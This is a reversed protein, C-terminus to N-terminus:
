IRPPFPVPMAAVGSSNSFAADAPISALGIESIRQELDSERYQADEAQRLLEQAKQKEWRKRASRNKLGGIPDPIM